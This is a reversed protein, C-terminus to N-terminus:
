SPGIRPAPVKHLLEEIVKEPRVRRVWMEPRLSTRHAWAAVALAKVAEPIVYDRGALIGGARTLQVLDLEARRSGGVVIEPQGRPAAALAV